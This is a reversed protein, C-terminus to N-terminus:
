VNLTVGMKKAIERQIKSDIDNSTNAAVLILGYLHMNAQWSSSAQRGIYLPLNSFVAGDSFVNSKTVLVGNVNYTSSRAKSSAKAIIARSQPIVGSDPFETSVYAGSMNAEFSSKGISSLRLRILGTESTVNGNALIYEYSATDRLKTVGAFITVEQAASLDLENTQLFDDVGDFQLYNQDTRYGTIEKIELESVTTIGTGTRLYLTTSTATYTTDVTGGTANAILPTAGNAANVLLVTTATSTLKATIKYTKGAEFLNDLRIGGASEIVTFSKTTTTASGIPSWNTFDFSPLKNVGFILTQQLIPRSASITQYAHNGSIKQITINTFDANNSDRTYLAVTNSTQAQAIFSILGNSSRSRIGTPIVSTPFSTNTGTIGVDGTGSYNSINITIKYWAGIELLPSVVVTKFAVGGIGAGIAETLSAINSSFALGKSKDLMLGVPQGQATVPITGGADQYLAHLPFQRLFETNFDTIAQYPTAQTGEELQFGSVIVDKASNNVYKAVGFSGTGISLTAPTASVRYLGGGKPEVVINVSSTGKCICVIDTETGASNGSVIPVSGDLTRIYFSFVYPIGAVISANKYAYSTGSDHKKIRLGTNSVLSEFSSPEVYGGRPTADTIGNRFETENFLNRRWKIKEETLDNPDYFFGQENNAFMSRALATLNGKVDNIWQNVDIGRRGSLAMAPLAANYNIM